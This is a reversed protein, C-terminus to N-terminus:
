KVYIQGVGTVVITKIGGSASAVNIEAYHYTTSDNDIYMTADPDPKSFYVTLTPANKDCANEGVCMSSISSGRTISYKQICEPDTSLCNATGSFKHDFDADAFLLFSKAQGSNVNLYVGYSPFVNPALAAERGSVGYSQAQRITLAIDYALNNLLITNDFNRQSFLVVSTLLVFIVITVLLEILTFGAKLNKKKQTFFTKM